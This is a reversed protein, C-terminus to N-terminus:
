SRYLMYDSESITKWNILTYFYTSNYRPDNKDELWKLPHKDIFDNRFKVNGGNYVETYSIFYYKM